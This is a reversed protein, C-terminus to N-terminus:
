LSNWRAIKKKARIYPFALPSFLGPFIDSTHTRDIEIRPVRLLDTEASVFNADTTFGAKFGAKKVAKLTLENYLGKPYAIYDININLQKELVSKSQGIEDVLQSESLKSLNPHTATHCGITWGGKILQKLLDVNLLPKQNQIELRNAKNSNSLVFFTAPLKHKKLIPVVFDFLDTYGDDFTLAVAPKNTFSNKQISSVIKELPIIAFREKLWILQFEFESPTIDVLTNDLSITHYALVGHKMKHILPLSNSLDLARAAFSKFKRITHNTTQHQTNLKM